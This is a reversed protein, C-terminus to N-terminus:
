DIVLIDEFYYDEGAVRWDVKIRWLGNALGTINISQIGSEEPKVPVIFDLASDSPRFFTITGDITSTSDDFDFIVSLIGTRQNHFLTIGDPIAHTRNLKDIKEQYKLEQEYYNIEVLNFRQLSAFGVLALIFVAFSGFLVAIATGWSKKSLATM